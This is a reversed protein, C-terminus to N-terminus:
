SASAASSTLASAQYPGVALVTTGVQFSATHGSVAAVIASLVQPGTLHTPSGGTESVTIEYSGIRFSATRTLIDAALTALLQELM